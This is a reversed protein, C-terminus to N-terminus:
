HKLWARDFRQAHDFWSFWRGAACETAGTWHLLGTWSCSHSFATHNKSNKDQVSVSFNHVGLGSNSKLLKIARTHSMDSAAMGQDRAIGAICADLLNSGEDNELSSLMRARSEKRARGFRSSGFPGKSGRFVKSVKRLLQAAEPCSSFANAQRRHVLHPIDPWLMVLCGAHCLHQMAGLNESGQDGAMILRLPAVGTAGPFDPTSKGDSSRYFYYDRNPNAYMLDKEADTLLYRDRREGAELIHEPMTAAFSFGSLAAAFLKACCAPATQDLIPVKEVGQIDAESSGRRVGLRRRETSGATSAHNDCQRGLKHCGAFTPDDCSSQGGTPVSLEAGPSCGTCSEQFTLEERM